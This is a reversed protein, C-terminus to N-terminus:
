AYDAIVKDAHTITEAFCTKLNELAQAQFSNGKFQTEADLSQRYLETLSLNAAVGKIAHAEARAKEWDQARAFALLEDISTDAKFKALMKAYLKGNNMLRKKGEEIDIYVVGAV